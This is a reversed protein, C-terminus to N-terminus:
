LGPEQAWPCLKHFALLYCNLQSLLLRGMDLPHLCIGRIPTVAQFLHM